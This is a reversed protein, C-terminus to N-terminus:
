KGNRQLEISSLQINRSFKESQKLLVYCSPMYIFVSSFLIVSCWLFYMDFSDNDVQVDVM